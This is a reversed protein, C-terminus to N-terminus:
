IQIPIKSIMNNDSPCKVEKSSFTFCNSVSDKYQIKGINQPTPYVYVKREEEGFFYVFILGIIFSLIFVKISIYQLLM